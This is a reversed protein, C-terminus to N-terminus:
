VTKRLTLNPHGYYVYALYTDIPAAGAGPEYKARLDRLIAGVPEGGELARKWFEVALLQAVADDVEWLAGLVGGFGGKLCNGPFGGMDGLLEDGIGSMCANLFFFPTRDTGYRASRFLLSSLPRGDSLYLRPADSLAPDYEGHGAFHVTEVGGIREFDHELNADLLNKLAAASAALPVAKYTDALLRGEEEARPLRELGSSLKYMGVMVAMHNVPISSPPQAPPRTVRTTTGFPAPMGAAGSAGGRERIWRGLAVQAGLFGPRAPDLPPDVTTLEWPLYPEASVWLVSPPGPAVADAVERLAVFVEPPLQEAILTGVSEFLNAVLPDDAYDNIQKVIDTAFSKADDGLDVPYPGAGVSLPHSSFLHCAYQGSAANGDLKSLEITLDAPVASPDMHVPSTTAAESLWASGRPDPQVLSPANAQGIVLPRSAIGCITGKHIYRVELRTLSVPEPGQPDRGVLEVVARAETPRALEVRLDASWGRPADVGAASVVVTFDLHTAGAAVAVEVPGGDLGAQQTIDFGITVNFPVRAPRYDPADMFPWARFTDSATPEPPKPRPGVGRTRGRRTGGSSPPASPSPAKPGGDGRSVGFDRGPGGFDPLDPPEAGAEDLAIQVAVPTEGALVVGEELSEGLREAPIPPRSDHEHLNLVDLLPLEPPADVCRQLVDVVDRAYWLVHAALQRRIAVSGRRPDRHLRSALQVPDIDLRRARETLMRRVVPHAADLWFGNLALRHLVAEATMASDLPIAPILM